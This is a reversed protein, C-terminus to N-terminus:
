KKSKKIKKKTKQEKDFDKFVYDILIMCTRQTWQERIEEVYKSQSNTQGDISCKYIQDNLIHCFEHLMSEKIDHLRKEKWMKPIGPYIDVTAWIYSYNTEIAMATNEQTKNPEEYYALRVDWDRIFFEKQLYWGMDILYKRLEKPYISKPKKVAVSKKIKRKM